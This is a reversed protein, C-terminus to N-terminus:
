VGLLSHIDGSNVVKFEKVIDAEAQQIDEESKSLILIDDAYVTLYLISNRNRTFVSRDTELQNFGCNELHAVFRQNWCRGM